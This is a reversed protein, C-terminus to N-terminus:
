RQRPLAVDSWRTAAAGGLGGVAAGFVGTFFDVILITEGKSLNESNDAAALGVVTGLLIGAGAGFLIGRGVHSGQAMRLREIERFHITLEPPTRVTLSSDTWSALLGRIEHAGPTTVRVRTSAPIWRGRLSDMQATAQRPFIGLGGGVLLLIGFWRGLTKMHFIWGSSSGSAKRPDTGYAAYLSVPADYPM